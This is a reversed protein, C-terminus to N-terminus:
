GIMFNSPCKVTSRARPSLGGAAVEFTEVSKIQYKEGAYVIWDDATLEPLHRVTAVILL